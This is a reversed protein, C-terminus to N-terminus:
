KSSPIRKQKKSPNSLRLERSEISLEFRWEIFEPNNPKWSGATSQVIGFGARYFLMIWNERPLCNHHTRLWVWKKSHQPVVVFLRGSDKLLRNYCWLQFLPSLSHELTHRTTIFDLSRSEFHEGVNIMDDQVSKVDPSSPKIIDFFTIDCGKDALLKCLYETGGVDVGKWGSKIYKAIWQCSRAKSKSFGYSVTDAFQKTETVFQDFLKTTMGTKRSQPSPRPAGQRVM